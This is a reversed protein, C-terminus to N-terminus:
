KIWGQIQNNFKDYDKRTNDRGLVTLVDQGMTMYFRKHIERDELGLVRQQGAWIAITEKLENQAAIKDMQKSIAGKAAFDGAVHAVRSAMDAPNELECERRMKDLAAKDLLILDGEVVEISRQQPEPLPPVFGCYPCAIRFKEYPKACEPNMCPKLEIEDPDKEKKARKTGRDLSWATNKCPLGHRMVNSVMDVILAIKGKVYRLARGVMQRYKGLSATPRAMIVVDCAPVDFGEDFLDVNILIDLTNNKFEKIYKTRVATPTKSSLSAAKVGNIKFDQAINNSTEIDTAFVIAKRGPCHKIYAEVVDGVIRSKKAANKLTQGSWDGSPAIRNDDVELDSKPCVIEYDSLAGIEILQRMNLGEQLSHFVGDNHAGLGQRDARAPTATVGLGQANPFMAVAKGWKNSQLVHHAEDIIWRQVERAWNIHKDSRAILTDVSVVSVLASPNLFSKGFRERHESRISNVTSTSAIIEHCIDRNALHVSMQGVLENRHAIVTQKLGGHMGDLVIDTSIISKGGGTPLVALVNRSGMNWDYYIRNKLDAQDPRLTIM